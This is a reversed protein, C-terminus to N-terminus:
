NAGVYQPFGEDNLRKKQAEDETVWKVAQGSQPGSACGALQGLCAVLVVMLVLRRIPM